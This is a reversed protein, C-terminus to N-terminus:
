IGGKIMERARHYTVCAWHESKGFIIAIEKFSLEANLMSTRITVEDNFLMQKFLRNEFVIYGAALLFLSITIGKPFCKDKIWLIIIACVM